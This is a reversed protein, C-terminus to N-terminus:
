IKKAARRAAFFKKVDVIGRVANDKVRISLQELSMENRHGLADLLMPLNVGTLVAIDDRQLLDVCVNTSSGGFIDTLILCGEGSFSNVADTLRQKLTELSDSGHFEVTKLHNQPGLIVQATESLVESLRGHTIIVIGAM